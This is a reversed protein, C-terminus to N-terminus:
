KGERQGPHRLDAPRRWDASGSQYQSPCCQTKKGEPPASERGTLSSATALAVGLARIPIASIPLSAPRGWPHRPVRKAEGIQQQRRVQRHQSLRRRTLLYQPFVSIQVVPKRADFRTRAMCAVV